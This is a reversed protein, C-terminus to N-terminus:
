RLIEALKMLKAPAAQAPTNDRGPVPDDFHAADILHSVLFHGPLGVASVLVVPCTREVVQDGWLVLLQTGYPLEIPRADNELAIVTLVPEVACIYNFIICARGPHIRQEGGALVVANGAKAAFLLRVNDQLVM